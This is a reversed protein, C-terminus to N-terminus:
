FKRISSYDSFILPSRSFASRDLPEVIRLFINVTTPGASNRAVGVISGGIWFTRGCWPARTSCAIIMHLRIEKTSYRNPQFKTNPPNFQKHNIFLVTSLFFFLIHSAGFKLFFLFLPQIWIKLLFFFHPQTMKITQWLLLTLSIPSWILEAHQRQLVKMYSMSLKKRQQANLLSKQLKQRM